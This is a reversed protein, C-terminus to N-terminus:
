LNLVLVRAYQPRRGLDSNSCTGLSTEARRPRQECIIALCPLNNISKHAHRGFPILMTTSYHLSHLKIHPQHQSNSATGVRRGLRALTRAVNIVGKLVMVLDGCGADCNKGGTFHGLVVALILLLTFPEYGEKKLSASKYRNEM